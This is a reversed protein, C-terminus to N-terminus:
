LDSDCVHFVLQTYFSPVKAARNEPNNPRGASASAGRRPRRRQPRSETKKVRKKAKAVLFVPPRRRSLHLEMTISHSLSLLYHPLLLLAPALNTVNWVTRYGCAVCESSVPNMGTWASIKKKKCDIVIVLVMNFWWDASVKELHSASSVSVTEGKKAQPVDEGEEATKTEDDCHEPSSDENM